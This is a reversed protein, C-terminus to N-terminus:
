ATVATAERVILQPSFWSFNAQKLKVYQDKAPRILAMLIGVGLDRGVIKIAM